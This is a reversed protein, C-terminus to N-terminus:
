IYYGKNYPTRYLSGIKPFGQARVNAHEKGNEEGNQNEM